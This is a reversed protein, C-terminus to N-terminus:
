YKVQTMIIINEYSDKYLDFVDTKSSTRSTNGKSKSGGSGISPSHSQYHNSSSKKISASKKKELMGSNASKMEGLGFDGGQSSNEKPPSLEPQQIPRNEEPTIPLVIQAASGEQM